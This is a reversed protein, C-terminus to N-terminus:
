ARIVQYRTDAQTTGSRIVTVDFHGEAFEQMLERAFPNNKTVGLIKQAKGDETKERLELEYSENGWKNDKLVGKGTFHLVTLKGPVLKVYRGSGEAQKKFEELEAKFDIQMGEDKNENM